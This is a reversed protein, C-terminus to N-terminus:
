IRIDLGSSPETLMVKLVTEQTAHKPQETPTNSKESAKASQDQGQNEFAFNLNEFGMARFQEQLQEIQRRILDQTDARDASFTFVSGQNTQELKISLRGLDDPSLAVDVQGGTDRLHVVADTIAHANATQFARHTTFTPTNQISHIPPQFLASSTPDTKIFPASIQSDNSTELKELRNLVGNNLFSSQTNLEVNESTKVATPHDFSPEFHSTATTAPKPRNENSFPELAMKQYAGFRGIQTGNAEPKSLNKSSLQTFSFTEISKEESLRENSFGLKTTPNSTDEFGKTHVAKPDQNLKEPQLELNEAVDVISRSESSYLRGTPALVDEIKASNLDATKEAESLTNAQISTFPMDSGKHALARAQVNEAPFQERGLRIGEKQANPEAAQAQEVRSFDLAVLQPQLEQHLTAPITEKKATSGSLEIAERNSHPPAPAIVFHQDKPQAILTQSSVTATINLNLDERELKANPGPHFPMAVEEPMELLTAEQVPEDETFSPESPPVPDSDIEGRLRELVHSFDRTTQSSLDEGILLLGKTLADGSPRNEVITPLDSLINM